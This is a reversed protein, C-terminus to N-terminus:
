GVRSWGMYKAATRGNRQKSFYLLLLKLQTRLFVACVIMRELHNHKYHLDFAFDAQNRNWQSSDLIYIFLGKIDHLDISYLVKICSLIKDQSQFLDCVDKQFYYIHVFASNGLPVINYHFKKKGGRESKM